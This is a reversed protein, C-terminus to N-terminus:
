LIFAWVQQFFSIDPCLRRVDRDIQLLVENDKFYNGWSSEPGDSLPHDAIKDDGPPIVMETIFQKYVMRKNHLLEKWEAKNPTLYGLILRWCLSRYGNTDPIGLILQPKSLTIVVKSSESIEMGNFCLTRLKAVDIIDSQLVEDFEKIRCYM